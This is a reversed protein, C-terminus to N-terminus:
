GAARVRARAARAVLPSSVLASASVLGLAAVVSVLFGLAVLPNTASSGMLALLVLAAMFVSVVLSIGVPIAIEAIRARHLQSVSAGAVHQARYRPAQDIVRATQTVGTSVAALVAAIGVTLLAGTVLAQNMLQAVADGNPFTTIISAFGAVVLAITVGSVARWGARPDSTLRRAGVLLGPTPALFAAFRAVIWVIFPGALNVAFVMTGVTALVGVIIAGLSVGEIRPLFTAVVLFVVISLVWVLLRVVSMRVTHAGRAIGLPSLAVGTLTIAASLAAFLALAFPTLALAWWPLILEGVTFKRIGFDLHSLPWAAAVHVGVGIAAGVISQWAVDSVAVGAVQARTGGVLRVAALDKERRALSLRAAAGGLAIANPVLLVCAFVACIVLMPMIQAEPSANASSLDFGEAGLRGYFAGTGALVTCVIATAAAFAIVPLANALSNRGRVLMPLAKM